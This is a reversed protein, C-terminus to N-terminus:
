FYVFKCQEPPTKNLQADIKWVQLCMDEGGSYVRNADVNSFLCCLLKDSHGRYNALPVGDMANWIQVTSDYSCSALLNLGDGDLKCWNLGTVRERHGVLKHKYKAFLKANALSPEDQVLQAFDVVIVNFDNSGSAVLTANANLKICTILKQHNYFVCLRRATKGDVSFLEMSGDSKGILVYAKDASKKQFCFETLGATTDAVDDTLKQYFNVNEISNVAVPTAGTTLQFSHQMIRGDAVSYLYSRKAGSDGALIGDVSWELTYISQSYNTFVYQAPRNLLYILILVTLLDDNLPVYRNSTM